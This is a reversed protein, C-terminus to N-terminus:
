KEIGVRGKVGQKYYHKIEKMETVLDAYEMIEETAYRGTIIVETAPNRKEIVEILKQVSFLNYRVAINAEDLIIIDYEGSTIAEEAEKLGVNAADVDAQKPANFIFCGLGYQRLTIAPLFNAISNLESYHTGKAFQAIFIKKGAGVARLALGMAATTKGKGNGTYVQVYGKEEM